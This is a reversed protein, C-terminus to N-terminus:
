TRAVDKKTRILDCQCSPQRLPFYDISNIPDRTTKQGDLQCGTPTQLFFGARQLRSTAPGCPAVYGFFPFVYVVIQCM